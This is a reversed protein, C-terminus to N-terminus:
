FNIVLGFGSATPSLKLNLGNDSSSNYSGVFTNIASKKRHLTILAIIGTIATMPVSILLVAGYFIGEALSGLGSSSNSSSLGVGALVSTAAALGCVTGWGVAARHRRDIKQYLIYEENDMPLERALENYSYTSGQYSYMKDIYKLESTQGYAIYVCMISLAVTSLIRIIHSM